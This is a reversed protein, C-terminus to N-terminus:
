EERDRSVATELVTEREEFYAPADRDAEFRVVRELAERGDEAGGELEGALELYADALTRFAEMRVRKAEVLTQKEEVDGELEALSDVDASPDSPSETSRPSDPGALTDADDLRRRIEATEEDLEDLLENAETEITEVTGSLLRAQLRCYEVFAETTLEPEDADM